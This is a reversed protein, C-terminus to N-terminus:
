VYDYHTRGKKYEEEDASSDFSKNEKIKKRNKGFNSYTSNENKKNNENEDALSIKVLQLKKVRLIKPPIATNNIIQPNMKKNLSYDHNKRRNDIKYKDGNEMKNLSRINKPKSYSYRQGNIKVRTYYNGSQNYNSNNNNYFTSYPM